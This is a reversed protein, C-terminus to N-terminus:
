VLLHAPSTRFMRAYAPIASLPQNRRKSDPPQVIFDLGHTNGKSLKTQSIPNPLAKRYYRGKGNDQREETRNHVVMISLLLLTMVMHVQVVLGDAVTMWVKMGEFVPM